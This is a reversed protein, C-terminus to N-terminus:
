RKLKSKCGKVGNYNNLINSEFIYTKKDKRRYEKIAITILEDLLESYSKGVAEWLYFSLSGPIINLENLYVEKKKNDILYDIRVVGSLGLAHATTLTMEKIKKYLKSDIDAPIVRSTNLMGGSKSSAMKGKLKGKSNGIYKDEFSLFEDKGTVLELESVQYNTYDGMVSANVEVLNSVMEEVIIKNDFEIATNISKILEDKNKAKSIGISSGLNAPKIILPFKLSDLKKLVKNQDNIFEIDYFWEYNVVDIDNQKLVQKQIVKDQGISSACVKSGVYPIGLTDLYGQLTGDEVNVGHVVPFMIDVDNVIRKFGKKNQLVIKNDKLYITINKAYKKIMDLDRFTDVEKLFAGTYMEKDKTIYIPVVEYKEKNFHEMAQIASIISVEHEVTQGGFIVGVKIM